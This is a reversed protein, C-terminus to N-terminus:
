HFTATLEEASSELFDCVITIDARGNHPDHTEISIISRKQKNSQGLSTLKTEIKKVTATLAIPVTVFGLCEEMPCPHHEQPRVLLLRWVGGRFPIGDSQVIVEWYGNYFLAREGPESAPNDKHWFTRITTGPLPVCVINREAM